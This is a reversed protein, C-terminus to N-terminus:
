LSAIGGSANAAPTLLSYSGTGKDAIEEHLSVQMKQFQIIHFSFWDVFSYGHWMVFM